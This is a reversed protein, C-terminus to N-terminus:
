RPVKRDPRIPPVYIEGGNMTVRELAQWQVKPRLRRVLNRRAARYTHAPRAM